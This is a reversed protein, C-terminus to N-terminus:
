RNAFCSRIDNEPLSVWRENFFTSFPILTHFMFDIEREIKNLRLICFVGTNFKVVYSKYFNFLDLM